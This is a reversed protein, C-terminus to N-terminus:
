AVSTQDQHPPNFAEMSFRSCCGIVLSVMTRLLQRFVAKKEKKLLLATNTVIFITVIFIKSVM